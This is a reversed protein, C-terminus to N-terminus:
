VGVHLPALLGQCIDPVQRVSLRRSVSHIPEVCVIGRATLPFSSGGLGRGGGWLLGLTKKSGSHQLCCTDGQCEKQGKMNFLACILTGQTPGLWFGAHSAM